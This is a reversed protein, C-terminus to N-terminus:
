KKAGARAALKAIRIPEPISGQLTFCDLVMIANKLTLGWHRIFVSKGTKLTVRDREGLNAYQLLKKEADLPFHERISNGLGKSDHFTLAIIPLQTEHMLKKGDIINFMSIILGNLMICNVDNRNLSKFMSLINETSDNGETTATGFVLGDVIMDRRMVVGALTSRKDFKNFTEAVAFARIGKKVLHCKRLELGIDGNKNDEADEPGGNM